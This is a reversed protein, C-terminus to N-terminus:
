APETPPVTVTAVPIAAVDLELYSALDKAYRRGFVKFGQAALALVEDRIAQKDGALDKHWERHIPDWRYGRSKLIQRGELDQYSIEASVGAPSLEFLRRM